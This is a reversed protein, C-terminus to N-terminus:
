PQASLMDASHLLWAEPTKPEVPSGWEKRGHHALMIHMVATIFNLPLGAQMANMQFVMTSGVVHGIRDRYETGKISGPKIRQSPLVSVEPTKYADEPYVMKLEYTYELTKCYDHLFASVLLASLNLHGVYSIYRYEPDDYFLAGVLKLCNHVVEATHLALGGLYDHHFRSSGPAVAFASDTFIINIMAQHEPALTAAVDSLYNMANNVTLTEYNM